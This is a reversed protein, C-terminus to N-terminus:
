YSFKPNRSNYKDIEQSYPAIARAIEKGNLNLPVEIKTKSSSKNSSLLKIVEKLLIDTSSSSNQTLYNEQNSTPVSYYQGETIYRVTDIPMIDLTSLNPGSITDLEQILQAEQSTITKKHITVNGNIGRSYANRISNWDAIAKQAMRSTSTTVGKYMDTASQKASQAM